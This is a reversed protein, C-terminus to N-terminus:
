QFLMIFYVAFIQGLAYWYWTHINLIIAYGPVSLAPHHFETHHLDQFTESSSHLSTSVPKMNPFNLTQIM